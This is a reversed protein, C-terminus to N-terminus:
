VEVGRQEQMEKQVEVKRQEEMEKQEKADWSDDRIHVNKSIYKPYRNVKKELPEKTSTWLSVVQIGYDGLDKIWRSWKKFFERESGLHSKAITIQLPFMFCKGRRGNEQNSLDFRVIIGDIARFNFQMPCYLIYKETISFTLYGRFMKVDMVQSINKSIDLGSSSITSLLNAEIFIGTVAENDIYEDLAVLFDANGFKHKGYERLQKVVADRAMVCEYTGVEQYTGFTPCWECFYRHDILESDM